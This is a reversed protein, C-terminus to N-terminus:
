STHHNKVNCAYHTITILCWPCHQNAHVANRITEGQVRAEVSDDFEIRSLLVSCCCCLLFHLVSLSLLLVFSEVIGVKIIILTM